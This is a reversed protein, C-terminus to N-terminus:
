YAEITTITLVGKKDSIGHVRVRKAAFDAAKEPNALHYIKKNVTDVLVFKGGMRVCVRTCEAPTRGLVGSKLADEHSANASHVNFACQSDSIEGNVVVSPDAAALSLTSLIILASLSKTM